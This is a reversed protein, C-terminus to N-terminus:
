RGGPALDEGPRLVLAHIDGPGSTDRRQRCGGDDAVDTVFVLGANGPLPPSTNAPPTVPLETILTTCAQPRAGCAAGTGGPPQSPRDHRLRRCRIPCSPTTAPPVARLPWSWGNLCLARCRGPRVTASVRGARAACSMSVLVGDGGLTGTGCGPRTATPMTPSGTIVGRQAGDMAPVLGGDHRPTGAGARSASRWSMTMGPDPAAPPWPTASATLAM